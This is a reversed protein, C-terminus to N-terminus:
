SNRSKFLKEAGERERKWKHYRYELIILDETDQDLLNAANIFLKETWRRYQSIYHGFNSAHFDCMSAVHSQTLNNRMGYERLLDGPHLPRDDLSKIRKIVIERKSM